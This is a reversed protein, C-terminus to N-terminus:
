KFNILRLKVKKDVKENAVRCKFDLIYKNLIKEKDQIRLKKKYLQELLNCLDGFSINSGPELTTEM